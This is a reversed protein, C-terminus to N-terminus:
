YQYLQDVQIAISFDAGNLNIIQGKDNYLQVQLRSIDIPGLYNRINVKLNSTTSIMTGFNGNTFVPIRAFINSSLTGNYKNDLTNKQQNFVETITYAQATTLGSPKPLGTDPDDYKLLTPDNLCIDCNYYEPMNVSTFNDTIGIINKNVKNNNYEDIGLLIYKPGYTDVVSNGTITNNNVGNDSLVTYKISNTNDYTKFGLLIGINSNIKAGALEEYQSMISTNSDYFTIDYNTTTNTNTITTKGSNNNYTFTLDVVSSQSACVTNLATMLETPSYNGPPITILDGNCLFAATGYANDFAYWSHPIELGILTIKIVKYIPENLDVTYDASPKTIDQRFQSDIHLIRTHTNTLTPNLQGRLIPLQYTQEIPLRKDLLSYHENKNSIDVIAGDKRNIINNSKPIDQIYSKTIYKTTDFNTSGNKDDDNIENGNTVDDEDDGDEDDEDEEDSDEKDTYEEEDNKSIYSLLRLKVQYLFFQFKTSNKYNPISTLIRIIADNIKSETISDDQDLDILELLEKNTYENVNLNLNISEQSM